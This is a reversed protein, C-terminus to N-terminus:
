TAGRETGHTSKCGAGLPKIKEGLLVPQRQLQERKIKRDNM